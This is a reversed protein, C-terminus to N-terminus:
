WSLTASAGITTQSQTDKSVAGKILWRGNDSWTSVGIALASQGEHMAVGASVASEGADRAHGLMAVAASSAIGAKTKKDMKGLTDYLSQNNAQMKKAFANLQSGNIADTSTDSIEGAAVNQIRRESGSAGVSVVGDATAGAFGGYTVGGVTASEVTGTAGGTTTNGATGDKKLNRGANKTATTLNGLYISNGVTAKVDNGLVFSDAAEASMTNNNGISYANAANIISPDGIAGSNEANVINGTGIAIANKANAQAGNGFALGNTAEKGVSAKYGIATSFKGAASADDTSEGEDKSVVTGDNTHFFKIGEKNMRGIATITDNTINTKQGDVNYTVLTYGNSSAVDKTEKTGDPNTVEVQTTEVNIAGVVKALDNLQKVNVADTDASGAAVNTIKKNGADIGTDKNIVVDGVKVNNFDVKSKTSIKLIGNDVAASLNKGAEVTLSKGNTVLSSGSNETVVNDTNNTKVTHGANNIAAAVTNATVFNDGNGTASGNTNDISGATLGIEIDNVGNNATHTVTIGNKGKFNVTDYAKVFDKAEGGVQLNWGTNLIDNVTAANSSGIPRATVEKADASPATINDALGTIKQEGITIKKGAEGVSVKKFDPTESLGITVKNAEVKTHLNTGVFGTKSTGTAIQFSSGLKQESSGEDGTFTLPQTVAANLGSLADGISKYAITGGTSPNGDTLTFSPASITGDTNVTSGGGIASAVSGAIGKIQSGNVADKSTDSITGDAVNSLKTATATTGDANQMSAIVEGAQKSDGSGDAQTNFTGDDQKYVKNGNTDTYVVPLQATEALGQADVNVKITSTKGDTNEVVVTTGEGNAFNVTDYPQVFDKPTTNNQLNWGTNLIDNVTAVKGSQDGTPATGATPATPVGITDTLGTIKGTTGDITIPSGGTASGIKISNALKFDIKNDHVTTVINSDSSTYTISEGLDVHDKKNATDSALADANDAIINLGKTVLNQAAVKLDGVNVANTAVAQTLDTVSNGNADVLGSKVNSVTQPTSGKAQIIVNAVDTYEKTTDPEGNVAEYYKVAGGAVIVKILPVGGATAYEFPTNNKAKNTSAKLQSVNVADTDATGAKVNTIKDGGVSLGNDTTTLVTDNTGNKLKVQKFEVDDKTAFTFESGNRSIKINKGDKFDVSDGASIFEGADSNAKATFGSNNIADAVSGATVLKKKDDANTIDAVKGKPVNTGTVNNVVLNYTKAKLKKGADVNNADVDVFELTNADTQISLDFTKANTNQDVSETVKVTKDSSKVDEKSAKAVKDLQGGNVADKSDPAITGDAVNKIKKSGANVGTQTLAVTNEDNSDVGLVVSTLEKLEKSLKVFLTDLGNSVVGINNDSLKETDTVGGIIKAADGLKRNFDNNTAGSDKVDGSFNLGQKAMNAVSKLQAVNVADSDDRGAAVNIIQRTKETKGVSVAGLGGLVTKSIARKDDDSGVGYVKNGALGTDVVDTAANQAVTLRARDSVSQSGLAVGGTINKKALAGRGIAVAEFAGNEPTNNGETKASTGLAISYDGDAEALRDITNSGLTKGSGIAIAHGGDTSTDKSNNNAAGSISRTGIVISRDGKAWIDNGMAISQEGVANTFSGVALTEDHEARASNGIAVSNWKGISAAERGIAIGHQHVVEASEGIAVSKSGSATSNWGMAIAGIVKAKAGIGATISYSGIAGAKDRIGGLNTNSDGLGQSSSDENVHFYTKNVNAIQSQLGRAISFLQSGNIADTSDKSVQGAAVHKIQREFNKAGVSVVDGDGMNESGGAFGTYHFGTNAIPNGSSDLQSVNAEETFKAYNYKKDYDKAGAADLTDFVLQGNADIKAVRTSDEYKLSGDANREKANALSTVSGAGLAVSNDLTAKAGIGFATASFGSAKAGTGVAAALDGGSYSQVGIAISGAGKGTTREYLSANDTPNVLWQGTNKKYKKAIESSNWRELCEKTLSPGCYDNWMSSSYNKRAIANIDDGGIAIASAGFAQTENGVSISQHGLQDAIGKDRANGIIVIQSSTGNVYNSDINKGKINGGATISKDATIDGSATINGTVGVGDNHQDAAIMQGAFLVSMVVISLKTLRFSPVVARKCSSKGQSKAFESVAVFTQTAKCFIVKFVRNM